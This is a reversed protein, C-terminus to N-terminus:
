QGPPPTRKRLKSWTIFNLKEREGNPYLLYVGRKKTSFTFRYEVITVEIWRGTNDNLLQVKESTKPNGDSDFQRLRYINWVTFLKGIESKFIGALVPLVVAVILWENVDIEVGQM